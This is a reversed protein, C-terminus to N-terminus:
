VGPRIGVTIESECAAFGPHGLHGEVVKPSCMRRPHPVCAHAGRVNARYQPVRRSARHDLANVVRPGRVEHRLADLRLKVRPSRRRRRRRVIRFFCPQARSSRRGATVCTCCVGGGCGPNRPSGPCGFGLNGRSFHCARYSEFKRCGAEFARSDPPKASSIARRSLATVAM